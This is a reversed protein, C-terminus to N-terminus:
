SWTIDNGNWSLKNNSSPTLSLQSLSVGNYTINRAAMVYPMTIEGSTRGASVQAAVFSEIIGSVKTEALALTTLKTLQGITAIDGVVNTDALSIYKINEISGFVSIDGEVGYSRIQIYELKSMDTFIGINGTVNKTNSNLTLKILEKMYTFDSLDVKANEVYLEKIYYRDFIEVVSGDTRDLRVQKDAQIPKVSAGYNDSWNGKALVARGEQTMYLYMLASNTNEIGGSRGIKLEGLKRLSDDNVVAKLKTVLCKM